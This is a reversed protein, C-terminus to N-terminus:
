VPDSERAPHLAGHDRSRGIEDICV